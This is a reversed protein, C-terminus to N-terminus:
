VVTWTTSNGSTNSFTFGALNGWTLGSSSLSGWTYSSWESWINKYDYHSNIWSTSTTTVNLWAM